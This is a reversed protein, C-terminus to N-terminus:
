GALWRGRQRWTRDASALSQMFPEAETRVPDGSCPAAYPGAAGTVTAAHHGTRQTTWETQEVVRDTVEAQFFESLGHARQLALPGAAGRVLKGASYEGLQGHLPRPTGGIKDGLGDPHGPGSLWTGLDGARPPLRARPFDPVPRQACPKLRAAIAADRLVDDHCVVLCMGVARISGTLGLGM